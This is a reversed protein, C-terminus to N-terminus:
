WLCSFPVKIAMLLPMFNTGFEYRIRVIDIRIELSDRSHSRNEGYPSRIEIDPSGGALSGRPITGFTVALHRQHKNVDENVGIANM